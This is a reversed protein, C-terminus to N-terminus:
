RRHIEPAWSVPPLFGKGAFSAPVGAGSVTLLAAQLRAATAADVKDMDLIFSTLPIKETASLTRFSGPKVFDVACDATLAYDSVVTADARGDLVEGLGEICSAKTYLGSPKVGELLRRAAYSKEYADDQGIVIRKGDLDGPTKFPSSSKVLLIGSLSANGNPDSIDALRSFHRNADNLRCALWPKCIVGDCSGDRLANMLMYPEIYYVLELDINFRAKFEKQFEGYTRTAVHHVCACATDKCYIDNVAIKLKLPAGRGDKCPQPAQFATESLTETGDFSGCSFVSCGSLMAASAFACVAMLAHRIM